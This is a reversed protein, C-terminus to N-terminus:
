NGTTSSPADSSGAYVEVVSDKIMTFPSKAKDKSPTSTTTDPHSFAFSALWLIVILGTLGFSVGILVTQRTKISQSRLMHVTQTIKKRM